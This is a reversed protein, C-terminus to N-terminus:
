AGNGLPRDVVAGPSLFDDLVPTLEDRALQRVAYASVGLSPVGKPREGFEYTWFFEDAVEFREVQDPSVRITHVLRADKPTTIASIALRTEPTRNPRSSHLLAGHYLIAEGAKMPLPRLYRSQITAMEAQFPIADAHPRIPDTLIHSGPVVNLCGNQETTDVLPSWVHVAIRDPEDVFSWDQHVCLDSSDDSAEKVMYNACVARFACMWQDIRPQVVATIAEYAAVRNPINGHYMTGHFGERRPQDLARYAQRLQEVVNPSLFPLVVYGQRQFISNIRRDHFIKRM